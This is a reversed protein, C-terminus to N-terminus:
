QLFVEYRKLIAAPTLASRYLAVEDITGEFLQTPTASGSAGIRFPNNNDLNSGSINSIDMPTGYVAGDVYRTMDGDRDFVAVVHHWNGDTIPYGDSAQFSQGGDDIRSQLRGVSNLRIYYLPQANYKGAIIGLKSQGTNIWAELTFDELGVNLNAPDVMEVYNTAGNFYLGGSVIGTTWVPGNVLTGANEGTSDSAITGAGDDLRWRYCPPNELEAM